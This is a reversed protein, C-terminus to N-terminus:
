PETTSGMPGAPRAGRAWSRRSTPPCRRVHVMGEHVIGENWGRVNWIGRGAGVFLGWLQCWGMQGGAEREACRRIRLSKEAVPPAHGPRRRASEEARAREDQDRGDHEVREDDGVDRRLVGERERDDAGRPWEPAESVEDGRSGGIRADDSPFRVSGRRFAARALYRSSTRGLPLLTVTLHFSVHLMYWGGLACWQLTLSSQMSLNSWWQGHTPVVIPRRM